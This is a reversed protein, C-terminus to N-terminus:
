YVELRIEPWDFCVALQVGSEAARTVVIGEPEEHFTARLGGELEVEVPRGDPSSRALKLLETFDWKAMDTTLRPLAARYGKERM